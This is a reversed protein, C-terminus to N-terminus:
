RNIFDKSNRIFICNSSLDASENYWYKIPNNEDFRVMVYNQNRYESGYIQGSSIEVLVDTGWKKMYRVVIKCQTENYPFDLDVTNDSQISCWINKSDTMQDISTQRDWEKVTKVLQEVGGRSGGGIAGLGAGFAGNEGDQISTQIRSSNNKISSIIAYGFFVVILGCILSLIFRKM